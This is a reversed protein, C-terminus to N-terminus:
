TRSLNSMEVTDRDILIFSSAGMRVLQMASLSGVTGAGIILFTSSQVISIDVLEKHRSVIESKVDVYHINRVPIGQGDLVASRLRVSSQSVTVRILLPYVSEMDRERDSIYWTGIRRSRELFAYITGETKRIVGTIEGASSHANRFVTKFTEVDIYISPYDYTEMIM